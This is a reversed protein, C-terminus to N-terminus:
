LTRLREEGLVILMRLAETESSLNFRHQVEQITNRSRQDLQGIQDFEAKVSSNFTPPVSTPPTAAPPPLYPPVQHTQTTPPVHHVQGAPPSTFPMQQTQVPHTQGFIQDSDLPISIRPPAATAAMAFSQTPGEPADSFQQLEAALNKLNERFTRESVPAVDVLSEGSRKARLYLAVLADPNDAQRRINDPQGQLWNFAQTLQERTYAQPIVTGRNM